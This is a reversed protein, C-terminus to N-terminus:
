EAVMDKRKYARKPKEAGSDQPDSGAPAAVQPGIQTHPEQSKTAYTAKKIAVLIRADRASVLKTVGNQIIQVKSMQAREKKM